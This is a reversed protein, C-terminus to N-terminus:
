ATPAEIWTRTEDLVYRVPLAGCMPCSLRDVWAEFVGNGDPCNKHLIGWIEKPYEDLNNM